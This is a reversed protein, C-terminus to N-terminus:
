KKSLRIDSVGDSTTATADGDACKVNNLVISEFCSLYEWM